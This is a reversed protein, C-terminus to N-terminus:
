LSAPSLNRRMNTHEMQLQPAWSGLKLAEPPFRKLSTIQQLCGTHAIYGHIHPSLSKCYKTNKNGTPCLTNKYHKQGTNSSAACLSPIHIVFGNIKGLSSGLSRKLGLTWYLDPSLHLSCSQQARPYFEGCGLLVLVFVRGKRSPWCDPYEFSFTSLSHLGVALNNKDAM